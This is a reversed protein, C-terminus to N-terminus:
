GQRIHYLKSDKIWGQIEHRSTPSCGNNGGAEKRCYQWLKLFILKAFKEDSQYM